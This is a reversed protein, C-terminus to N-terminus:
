GKWIQWDNEMLEQSPIGAPGHPVGNVLLQLVREYTGISNQKPWDPRRVRVGLKILTLAQEFSMGSTLGKIIKRLQRLEIEPHPKISGPKRKTAM